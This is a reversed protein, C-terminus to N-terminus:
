RARKLAQYLAAMDDPLGQEFRMTEGTVPHAFVLLYAHLAQRCLSASLDAAAGTLRNAKTRHGSGYDPDGILPCGIHTLHVRVQHTRGTELRCEVLSALGNTTAQDRPGLAESVSYHTIALRGGSQVVAMQLRNTPSRGLQTEIRGKAPMPVGWVLARYGRELVGTRGHDAFQAALSQHAADSKAAVMLGSTAKDLRHVIGPRRVGGIGSLSPGCHHLLANVLTGDPVGAGPHVVLGAPKNIVILAEDEFVIDLAIAEAVPEPEALDPIRLRVEASQRLKHSPDRVVAGDVWVQGAEILRKVRTRSLSIDSRSSILRDLRQGSDTPAVAIDHLQPRTWPDQDDDQKTM